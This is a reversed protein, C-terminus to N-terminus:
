RVLAEAPNLVALLYKNGGVFLWALRAVVACALIRDFLRLGSFIWGDLNGTLHFLTLGAQVSDTHSLTNLVAHTNLGNLHPDKDPDQESFRVFKSVTYIDACSMM